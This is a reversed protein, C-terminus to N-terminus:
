KALDSGLPGSSHTEAEESLGKSENLDLNQPGRGGPDKQVTM